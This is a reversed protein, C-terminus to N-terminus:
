LEVLMLWCRLVPCVTTYFLTQWTLWETNIIVLGIYIDWGLCLNQQPSIWKTVQDKPGDTQALFTCSAEAKDVKILQFKIFLYPPCPNLCFCHIMTLFTMFFSILSHIKVDAHSKSSELIRPSCNTRCKEVKISSFSETHGGNTYRIVRVCKWQHCGLHCGLLVPNILVLGLGATWIILM